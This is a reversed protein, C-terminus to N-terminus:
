KGKRANRRIAAALKVNKEADQDRGMEKLLAAHAEL